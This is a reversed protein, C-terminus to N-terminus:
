NKGENQLATTACKLLANAVRIAELPCIHMTRYSDHADWIAIQAGSDKPYGVVAITLILDGDEDTVQYTSM